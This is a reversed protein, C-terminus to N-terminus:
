LSNDSAVWTVQSEPFPGDTCNQWDYEISYINTALFEVGGVIMQITKGNSATQTGNDDTFSLSHTTRSGCSGWSPLADTGGDKVQLGGADGNLGAAAQLAVVLQEGNKILVSDSNNWGRTQRVDVTANQVVSFIEQPLLEEAGYQADLALWFRTGEGDEFEGAVPMGRSCGEFSEPMRSEREPPVLNVGTRAESRENVVPQEPDDGDSAFCAGASGLQETYSCGSALIVPIVLRQLRM